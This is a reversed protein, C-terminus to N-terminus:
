VWCASQAKGIERDGNVPTTHGRLAKSVLLALELSSHRKKRGLIEVSKIQRVLIGKEVAFSPARYYTDSM